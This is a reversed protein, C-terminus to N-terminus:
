AAPLLLLQRCLGIQASSFSARSAAMADPTITPESPGGAHDADNPSVVLGHSSEPLRPDERPRGTRKKAPKVRQTRRALIYGSHTVLDQESRLSNLVQVVQCDLNASLDTVANLPM